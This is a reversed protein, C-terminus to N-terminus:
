IQACRRPSVICSNPCPNSSPQPTFAGINPDIMESIYWSVAELAGKNAGTNTDKIKSQNENNNKPM